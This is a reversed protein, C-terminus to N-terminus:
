EIKKKVIGRDSTRSCFFIVLFLVVLLIVFFVVFFCLSIAPIHKEAADVFIFIACEIVFACFRHSYRPPDSRGM